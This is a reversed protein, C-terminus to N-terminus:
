PKVERRPTTLLQYTFLKKRIEKSYIRRATLEELERLFIQVLEDDTMSSAQQLFDGLGLKTEGM